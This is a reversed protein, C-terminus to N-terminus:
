SIDQSFKGEIKDNLQKILSDFSSTKLIEGFQTRYNNILSVGEVVIDYVKWNGNHLKMKYDVSTGKKKKPNMVQTRVIAYNDKIEQESVIVQEGSYNDIKEAYVKKLFEKYTFVFKKKEDFTRAKWHNALTRKSMEEFFFYKEAIASLRDIKDDHSLGSNDLIAVVEDATTRIIDIPATAYALTSYFFLAVMLIGLSKSYM